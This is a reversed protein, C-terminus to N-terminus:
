RNFNYDIYTTIMHSVLGDSRRYQAYRIEFAKFLESKKQSLYAYRIGLGAKISNFTSLDYDSTFYEESLEHEAYPKFYNAQSQTYLRLFPTVALAHTLKVPGEVSITHARTGFDDWYFRYYTRLIMRRGVFTNLQVGLPIKLRRVPLNEVRLSGDAFYVRHFPTSLLGHQYSVGPYFGLSMRKNIVQFIGLLINYSNRRYIDFWATNRLEHPYILKQPKGNNLRGWRLDDFFVQADLSWERTRSSNMHTLSFSEALSLYDSEFSLGSQVGASFGKRFFRRYGANLHTRADLVSASSMVFDIKDTSASSIIDIGADLHFAHTSDKQSDLSAQAAYVQLDETGVGGTIASHNNDQTYYSFLVQVETSSIKRKVYSSDGRQASATLSAALLSIIVFKKKM